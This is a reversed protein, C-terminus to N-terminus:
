VILGLEQNRKIGSPIHPILMGTRAQEDWMKRWGTRILLIDGKQIEVKQAERYEPSRGALDL